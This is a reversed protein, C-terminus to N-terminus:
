EFIFSIFFTGKQSGSNKKYAIGIGIKRLHTKEVIKSLAGPLLTLDGTGYTLTEYKKNGPFNPMDSRGQVAKSVMKEAAKTLGENLTFVKLGYQTRIKNVLELVNIKQEEISLTHSSNEVFLMLALSYVGGPYEGNKGFWIGLAGSNYRQDVAEPFDLDEQTLSPTSLFVVFTEGFKPPIEPLAQGSAKREALNNAFQEADEWFDLSPLDILHRETNIRDLVIQRVQKDTKILIPRLFDQTIYYGQNEQHIIGIGIQTFDPNLINEKLEENELLSTHISEAVLTESFAVNEGADVYLLGADELRNALSKGSSSINSIERKEQNAMDLSHQRAMDSLTPSLELLPLNNLKRQKNILNWLEKEIADIKPIDVVKKPTQLSSFITLPTVSLLFLLTWLRGKKIGTNM